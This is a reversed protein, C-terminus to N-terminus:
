SEGVPCLVHANTVVLDPGVFVGSGVSERCRLSAAAVLAARALERTSRGPAAAPRAGGSSALPVESATVRVERPALRHVVKQWAVWTAALLAVAVVGIVVTRVPFGGGRAPKVHRAISARLGNEALVALAAHAYARTVGRAAAAPSGALAGQIEVLPPAGPLASLSRSLRYRVRGDAVPTPLVVDVLLSAGCQLCLEAELEAPQRCTPCPLREPETM